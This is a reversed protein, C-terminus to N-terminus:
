AIGCQVCYQLCPDWLHWVSSLNWKWWGAPQLKVLQSSFKDPQRQQWSTSGGTWSAFGSAKSCPGLSEQQISNSKHPHWVKWKDKIFDV